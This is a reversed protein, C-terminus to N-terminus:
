KRRLEVIVETTEDARVEVTRAPVPHYLDADIRDFNIEYLGAASVEVVMDRQLGGDTVRGDHDIARIDEKTHMGQPGTPLPTGDVRFEFRLAYVPTFEYKVEQFGPLLDLM